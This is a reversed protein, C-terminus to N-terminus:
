YYHPQILEGPRLLWVLLNAWWESLVKFSFDPLSIVVVHDAVFECIRAWLNEVEPFDLSMIVFTAPPMKSTIINTARPTSTRLTYHPFPISITLLHQSRKDIGQPKTLARSMKRM